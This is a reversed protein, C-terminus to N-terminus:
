LRESYRDVRGDSGHDKGLDKSESYRDRGGGAGHDKGPGWIEIHGDGGWGSAHDKALDGGRQTDIDVGVLVM